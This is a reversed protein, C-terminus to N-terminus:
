AGDGKERELLVTIILVRVISNSVPWGVSHGTFIKPEVIFVVDGASSVKAEHRSCVIDVREEVHGPTTGHTALHTMNHKFSATVLRAPATRRALLSLLRM